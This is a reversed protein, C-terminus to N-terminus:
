LRVPMVVYRDASGNVSAVVRSNEDWLRLSLRADPGVARCIDMMFDPNLGIATAPETPEIAPIMTGDRTTYAKRGPNGELGGILRSSGNLIVRSEGLDPNKAVFVPYDSDLDIRIARARDGTMAAAAELSSLM